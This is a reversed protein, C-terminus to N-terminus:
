KSILFSRVFDLYFFEGDSSSLVLVVHMIANPPLQLSLPFLKGNLPSRTCVIIGELGTEEELKRTLEDVRSGNFTFSYGELNEDGVDGNDEAVHYYITRGDAKPPSSVNSDTSQLIMSMFNVLNKKPL